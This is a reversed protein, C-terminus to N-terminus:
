SPLDFVDVDSLEPPHDLYLWRFPQPTRKEEGSSVDDGWEVFAANLIGEIKQLCRSVIAKKGPVRRAGPDASDGQEASGGESKPSERAGLFLFQGDDHM